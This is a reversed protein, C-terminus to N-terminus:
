QVGGTVKNAKADIDEPITINLKEAVSQAMKDYYERDKVHNMLHNLFVMCNGEKVSVYTDYQRPLTFKISDKFNTILLTAMLKEISFEEFRYGYYKQVLELLAIIDGFKCIDEYYKTKNNLYEIILAKIIEEFELTKVKTLSALIALNVKEETYNEINLNKFAAIREKNKFFTNYKKFVGKLSENTVGLERMIVTIRDTSFEQSYCLIDYLYDEQPAPKSMNSYVLINSTLDEKEIYYKTYFANNKTLKLIKVNQLDLSDIDDIFDGEGDYWFVIHRNKGELTPKNFNEELFVKIENLNM